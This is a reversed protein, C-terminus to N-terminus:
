IVLILKEGNRFENILLEFFIFSTCTKRARQLPEMGSFNQFGGIGIFKELEQALGKCNITNFFVM